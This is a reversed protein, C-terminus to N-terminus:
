LIIPRGKAIFSIQLKIIENQM